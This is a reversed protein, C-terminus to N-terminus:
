IEREQSFLLLMSLASVALLLLAPAAARAFFAEDTASWIQTALTQFGTPGLLLTVPLEKITTLFVLAAGALMGPRLLPITIRWFVARRNLGLSRGAEEVRPNIQLLSTQVNGLAQPLFRVVYAFILMALTQYLVTAYNAGFFVLSLAIVIGPLAYGTYVSQYVGTSWRGPQRVQYYAIPLALIMAAIAALTGAKMSNLTVQWVPHFSEGATIGRILWYVIVGTPAVLAAGVVLACFTFAVWKLRGLPMLNGRRLVGASSRYYRARGRSRREAVLLVITLVVLLLSLLSALSRDFSSLYGTYIARTLSNYRLLSVAGFDSLTYLAVLLSGAAIAPRLNPLTVSFFTRWSGYGLSRSAEETAPDLNQLGARISLFLYPYTFLTLAYFAGPFGYISPLRDVGLPALLDQLMGKPGLTAVLAFGGVYSPIVLPMAVLITWIKRGPLDTRVTLWALPLSLVLSAGTVAISLWASNLLIRTTRPHLLLDVARDAGITGARFILYALPFLMFLAILTAVIALPGPVHTRRLLASPRRLRLFDGLRELMNLSAADPQTRM